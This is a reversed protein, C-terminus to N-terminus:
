NKVEHTAVRPALGQERHQVETHEKSFCSKCVHAFRCGNFNCGHRGNWKECVVQGTHPHTVSQMPTRKGTTMTTSQKKNQGPFGPTPDPQTALQSQLLFASSEGWSFGHQHQEKRYITDYNLVKRWQTTQALCAIQILYNIHCVVQSMPMSDELIGERLIRLAGEMYHQIKIKENPVKKGKVVSLEVGGISVMENDDLSPDIAFMNTIYAPIKRHKSGAYPGTGFAFPDSPPTKGNAQQSANPAPSLGAAANWLGMLDAMMATQPGATLHAQLLNSAAANSASLPTNNNAPPQAPPAATNGDQSSTSASPGTHPPTDAAPTSAPSTKDPQLIAIAEELLVLQGPILSKFERKFIDVKMRSLSRYSKFGKAELMDVTNEELEWEECWAKFEFNSAM